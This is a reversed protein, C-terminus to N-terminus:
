FNVAISVSGGDFGLDGDAGLDSFNYIRHQELGFRLTLDLDCGCTCFCTDWSIGIAADTAITDFCRDTKVRRFFVADSFFDADRHKGEVDGYYTAVALDAYISFNCGFFWEANVGIEPAVGWFNEKEETTSIVTTTGTDAVITTHLLARLKQHIDVGRVGVFPRLMFNCGLAMRRGFTLDFQDYHIKWKGRQEDKHWRAHGYFHTWEFAVDFESCNFLYSTGFRCGPSWKFHPEEHKEQIATIFVGDVETELIETRGFAAELGCLQPRWYLFDGWVAWQSQCPDCCQDCCQNDYYNYDADDYYGYEAHLKTCMITLMSAVVLSFKLHRLM